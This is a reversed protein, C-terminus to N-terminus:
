QLLVNQMTFWAHSHLLLQIGMDNAIVKVQVVNVSMWQSVSFHDIIACTFQEWLMAILDKFTIFTPWIYWNHSFSKPKLHRKTNHDM